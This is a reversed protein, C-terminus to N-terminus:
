AGKKHLTIQIRKPSKEDVVVDRSYSDYGPRVVEVRHTGRPLLVQIEGPGGVDATGYYNGDIYVTADDPQIQLTLNTDGSAGPERDGERPEYGPREPPPPPEYGRDRPDREYRDDDNDRPEYRYRDNDNDRPEYQHHDYDHRRDYRDNRRSYQREYEEKPLRMAGEDILDQGPQMQYKIHYDQGPLIRMTVAYPVCGPARFVIRHKGPDLRLRQWWGDYDDAVGVYDGDVYVRAASPKVEARIEGFGDYYYGGPYYGSYGSYYPYSYYPQFFYPNYFPRYFGYSYYHHYRPYHSFGFFVSTNADAKQEFVASGILLMTVLVTIKM